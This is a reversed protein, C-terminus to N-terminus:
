PNAQVGLAPQHDRPAEPVDLPVIASRESDVGVM